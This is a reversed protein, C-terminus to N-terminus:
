IVITEVRAEGSGDDDEDGAHEDEATSPDTSSADPSSTSSPPGTPSAGTPGASTPQDAPDTADATPTPEDTSM